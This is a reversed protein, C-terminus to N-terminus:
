MLASMAQSVGFIMACIFVFLFFARVILESYSPAGTLSRDSASSTLKVALREQQRESQAYCLGTRRHRSAATGFHQTM